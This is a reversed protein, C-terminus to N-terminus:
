QGYVMTAVNQGMGLSGADRKLGFERLKDFLPTGLGTAPDWGDVADWGADAIEPAAEGTYSEGTCGKSHGITISCTLTRETTCQM